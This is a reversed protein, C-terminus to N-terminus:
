GSKMSMGKAGHLYLQGGHHVGSFGVDGILKVLRRFVSPHQPFHVTALGARALDSFFKAHLDLAEGQFSTPVEVELAM